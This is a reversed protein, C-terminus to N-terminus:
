CRGRPPATRPRATRDAGPRPTGRAHRLTAARAATPRCLLGASPATGLERVSGFRALLRLHSAALLACIRRYTLSSRRLLHPGCGTQRGSPILSLGEGLGNVFFPAPRHVLGSQPDGGDSEPARE